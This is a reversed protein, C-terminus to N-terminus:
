KNKKKKYCERWGCLNKLEECMYSDKDYIVEVFDADSPDIVIVKTSDGTNDALTNGNSDKIDYAALVLHPSNSRDEYLHLMGTYIKDNCYISARMPKEKDMLDDWYHKNLTTRIKLFEFINPIYKSNLVRGSLYGLVLSCLFMGIIDMEYSPSDPLMYAINCYIFGVVLSSLLSHEVNDSDQKLTVLRYPILFAYGMVIYVISKELVDM